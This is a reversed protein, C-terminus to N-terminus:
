ALGVGFLHSGSVLSRLTRLAITDEHGFMNGQDGADVYDGFFGSVIRGPADRAHRARPVARLVVPFDVLSRTRKRRRKKRKRRAGSSSSPPYPRTENTETNHWHTGDDSPLWPYHPFGAERM